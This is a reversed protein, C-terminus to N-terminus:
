RFLRMLWEVIMVDFVMGFIFNWAFTVIFSLKRFVPNFGFIVNIGRALIASAWIMILIFIVVVLDQLFAPSDQTVNISLAYYFITSVPIIIFHSMIYIKMVKIASPQLDQTRNEGGMGTEESMRIEKGKIYKFFDFLPVSVFIVDIFGLLLMVIIAMVSNFVIDGASKGKFLENFVYVVDPLLLDVLGIFVIGAILSAKSDTLKEYCKAPFALIDTLKNRFDKM